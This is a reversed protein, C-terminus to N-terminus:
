GVLLLFYVFSACFLTGIVLITMIFIWGQVDQSLFEFFDLGHKKIARVIEIIPPITILGALIVMIVIWISAFIWSLITGM